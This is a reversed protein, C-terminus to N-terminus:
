ARPLRPRRRSWAVGILCLAGGILGLLTPLEGLLLWSLVVVIAPVALTASATAGASSRQLVYAWLVFAVASPFVGLYVMALGAPTPAAAVE